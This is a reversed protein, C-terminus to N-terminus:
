RRTAQIGADALIAEAREQEVIAVVQKMTQEYLFVPLYRRGSAAKAVRTARESDQALEILKAREVTSASRGYFITFPVGIVVGWFLWETQDSNM